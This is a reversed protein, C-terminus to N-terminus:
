LRQRRRSVAKCSCRQLGPWAQREPAWLPESSLGRSPLALERHAKNKGAARQPRMGRRQRQARRWRRRDSPASM